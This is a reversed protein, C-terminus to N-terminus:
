ENSATAQMGERIRELPSETNTWRGYVTMLM